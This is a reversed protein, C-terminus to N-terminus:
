SRWIIAAIAILLTLIMLIHQVTAGIGSRSGTRTDIYSQHDSLQEKMATIEETHDACVPEKAAIWRDHETVHGNLTDLKKEIRQLHHLITEEHPTM